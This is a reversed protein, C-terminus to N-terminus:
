VAEASSAGSDGGLLNDNCAGLDGNKSVLASVFPANGVVGLDRTNAVPGGALGEGVDV